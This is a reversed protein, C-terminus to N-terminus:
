REVATLALCDDRDFSHRGWMVRIRDYQVLLFDIHEIDFSTLCFQTLYFLM